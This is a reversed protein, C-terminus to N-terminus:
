AHQTGEPDPRPAVPPAILDEIERPFVRNPLSAALWEGARGVLEDVNGDAEPMTPQVMVAALLVLSLSLSPAKALRRPDALMRFLLDLATATEEPLEAQRAVSVPIPWSALM